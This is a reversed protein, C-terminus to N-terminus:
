LEGEVLIREYDLTIEGVQMSASKMSGRADVVGEM